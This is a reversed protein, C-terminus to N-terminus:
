ACASQTGCCRMCPTDTVETDTNTTAIGRIIVVIVFIAVMIVLWSMVVATLGIMVSFVVQARMMSRATGRELHGIVSAFVSVPRAMFEMMSALLTVTMAVAGTSM